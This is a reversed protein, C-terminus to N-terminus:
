HGEGQWRGVARGVVHVDRDIQAVAAVPPQFDRGAARHGHRPVPAVGGPAVGRRPHGQGRRPAYHVGQVKPVRSALSPFPVALGAARLIEPMTWRSPAMCVLPVLWTAKVKGGPSRGVRLTKTGTSRHPAVLPSRNMWASPETVTSASPPSQDLAWHKVESSPTENAGNALENV